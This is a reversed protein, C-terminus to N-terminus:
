KVRHLKKIMPEYMLLLFIVTSGAHLLNFPLGVSLSSLIAQTDPNEMAIYVTAVDMLPGYLALVSIGGFVAARLRSIKKRYFLLGSLLGILAFSYMQWPTFLGQGFLFNSAFTAIFGVLIGTEPGLGAGAIIIMAAMPKIGPTMFFALRSLVTLASMVAVLVIDTIGLEQRRILIGFPLLGIAILLLSVLYFGKGTFVQVFVRICLSTLGLSVAMMLVYMWKWKRSFRLPKRGCREKLSIEDMRM